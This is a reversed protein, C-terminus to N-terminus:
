SAEDKEVLRFGPAALTEMILKRGAVLRRQSIPVGSSEPDLAVFRRMPARGSRRLSGERM